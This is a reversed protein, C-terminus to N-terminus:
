LDFEKGNIMLRSGTKYGLARVSVVQEAEDVDYFVRFDGIRLEWEALENPRLTKRNRTVFMPEHLLQTKIAELIQKQENKRFSRLEDSARPTFRVQFSM